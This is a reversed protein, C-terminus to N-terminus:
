FHQWLSSALEINKFNILSFFGNDSLIKQKAFNMGIASGGPVTGFANFNWGEQQV